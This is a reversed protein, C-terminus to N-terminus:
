CCIMFYNNTVINNIFNNTFIYKQIYRTYKWTKYNVFYVYFGQVLVLNPFNSRDVVCLPKKM